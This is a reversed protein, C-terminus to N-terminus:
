PWAMVAAVKRLYSVSDRFSHCKKLKLRLGAQRPRDAVMQLHEVHEEANQSFVCIDSLYVLVCVDILDHLFISQLLTQMSSSSNTMGFPMALYDYHGYRTRFASKQIDDPNIRMQHFADVMDITSLCTAGQLRDLLDDIRPLPYSNRVTIKNLARYDVCVRLSGDKKKVFLVPAGYPRPAPGSTVRREKLQEQEAPSMRYVPKITHKHGPELDISNNIDRLLPVGTPEEYLDANRRIFDAEPRPRDKVMSEIHWIGAQIEGTEPDKAIRVTAYLVELGQRKAKEVSLVTLLRRRHENRREDADVEDECSQPLRLVTQEDGTGFRFERKAFDIHPNNARLWPMGLVIDFQDMMSNVPGEVAPGEGELILPAATVVRGCKATSRDGLM